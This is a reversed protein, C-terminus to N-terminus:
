PAGGEAADSDPEDGFRSDAHCSLVDWNIGINADHYREALKLVEWAQENTLDPRVAQVDEICWVIAVQQREALLAHINIPKEIDLPTNM